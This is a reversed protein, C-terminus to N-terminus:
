RVGVLNALSKPIGTVWPVLVWLPILLIAIPTVFFSLVLVMVSVIYGIRIWARMFKSM